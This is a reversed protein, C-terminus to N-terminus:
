QLFLIGDGHDSLQFKPPYHVAVLYLGNPPATVAALKRDKAKLLELVWAPPREGCGIAMLVGAINRVMHHLFGDATVDIQLYQGSRVVSIDKIVRRPTSSQCAAARFSSFDHEGVLYQCAAHMIEHDLPRPFSTVLSSYVGSKVRRNLILYRYHREVASFRAHFDESVSKAGTIRIDPPLKTNAGEVWARSPRQVQCDFHAVQGLAHVGTDTRGAAVIGIKQAAIEALASEIEGQITRVGEQRQLGHYNAGNYEVGIVIRM